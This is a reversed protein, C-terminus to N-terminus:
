GPFACSFTAAAVAQAIDPEGAQRVASFFQDRQRAADILDAIKGLDESSLRDDLEGVFCTAANEPLGLKLLGAYITDRSGSSVCGALGAFAVAAASFVRCRARM